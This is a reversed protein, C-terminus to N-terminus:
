LSSSTKCKVLLCWQLFLRQVHLTLNVIWAVMSRCGDRQTWFSMNWPRTLAFFWSFPELALGCADALMRADIRRRIRKLKVIFLVAIISSRLSFRSPRQWPAPHRRARACYRLKKFYFNSCCNPTPCYGFRRKSRTAQHRTVYGWSHCYRCKAMQRNSPSTLVCCAQASLDNSPPQRVM